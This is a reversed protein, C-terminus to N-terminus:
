LKYWINSFIIRILDKKFCYKNLLWNFWPVAKHQSLIWNRVMVFELDLYITLLQQKKKKLNVNLLHRTGEGERKSDLDLTGHIMYSDLAWHHMTPSACANDRKMKESGTHGTM